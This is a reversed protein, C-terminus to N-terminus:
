SVIALAQALGLPLLREEGAEIRSRDIWRGEQMLLGDKFAFRERAYAAPDVFATKFIFVVEHGRTGAHTYLNEIVSLHEPDAIPENLEELFERKLAAAAREGFEITGGPPRWGILAGGDDRVAILLLESRRWVIGIALPRVVQPPRWKSTTDSM